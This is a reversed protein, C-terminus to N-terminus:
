SIEQIFKNIKKIAEDVNKVKTKRFKKPLKYDQANLELVGKNSFYLKVWRSNQLINQPWDKKNDLSFTILISPRQKGGLTSYYAHVYPAKIGKNIKEVSQELEDYTFADQETVLDRGEKLLRKWNDQKM